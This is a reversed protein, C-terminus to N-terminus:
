HKKGQPHFFEALADGLKHLLPELVDLQSFLTPYNVERLTDLMAQVQNCLHGAGIHLAEGRLSHLMAELQSAQGTMVANSIEELYSPIKDSLALLLGRYLVRDDQTNALGATMDVGPLFLPLEDEPVNQSNVGIFQPERRDTAGPALWKHIVQVVEEADLPKAIHDNMGAKLSKERDSALAHATMAIIPLSRLHTHKRIQKTATLGDMVPMQIDMFILDYKNQLAKTVAQKGNEAVDVVFGASELIEVAIIRNIENDEVLLIDAGIISSSEEAAALLPADVALIRTEGETLFTDPDVTEFRATFVFRTGKGEESECTVSGHMLDALRRVISLGLGAGGYARTTSVDGQSFLSFLKPMHQQAIGVGSDEVVFRLTTDQRTVTVPEISLRVFGQRTFKIANDMLFGVAQTLRQADGHVVGPIYPLIRVEFALHKAEAAPRYAEAIDKIIDIVPFTHEELFLKGAELNSSDLIDNILRVLGKAGGEAKELYDRQHATLSTGLVLHVMGLIANMPTRIEHSMNALFANKAQSSQQAADRAQRLKREQERMETVDLLWAMTCQEGHYDALFANVLMEKRRGNAAQISIVRWSLTGYRQLEELFLARQAKDAYVDEISDGLHVGMFEMAFPNAFRITNDLIVVFCVPSSDMVAKLLRRENDREQQVLRIESLDQTYGVVIPGHHWAVRVLSVETPVPTGDKKVHLWEFRKHGRTFAEHVYDKALDRSMRGDPQREPSYAMFNDRYEEKHELGFLRVVADNCDIVTGEASWFTSAMPSSNLMIRAREESEDVPKDQICGVFITAGAEEPGEAPQATGDLVVPQWAGTTRNLMRFELSFPEEGTPLGEFFAALVAHHDQPHVWQQFFERALTTEEAGAWGILEAYDPNLQFTATHEQMCFRWMGLRATAMRTLMAAVSPAFANPPLPTPM